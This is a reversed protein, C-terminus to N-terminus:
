LGMDKIIKSKYSQYKKTAVDMAKKIFASDEISESNADNYM